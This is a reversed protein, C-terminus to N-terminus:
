FEYEHLAPWVAPKTDVKNADKAFVSKDYKERRKTFLFKHICHRPVVKCAITLNKWQKSIDPM